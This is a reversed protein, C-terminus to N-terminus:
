HASALKKALKAELAKRVKFDMVRVLAGNRQGLRPHTGTVIGLFRTKGTARDRLVSVRVGGELVHVEQHSTLLPHSASPHLREKSRPFLAPM